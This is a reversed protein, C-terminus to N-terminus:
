ADRQQRLRHFDRLSKGTEDVFLSPLIRLSAIQDVRVDEFRRTTECWVVCTWLRGWYDLQLPRM